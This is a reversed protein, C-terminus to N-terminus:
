RVGMEDLEFTGHKKYLKRAFALGLATTGVGIVIATLVLAHPLPDVFSLKSSNNTSTLIPSIGGNVYGISIIMINLGIEFINLSVLLKIINKQTLLGYVGVLMLIISAYQIM